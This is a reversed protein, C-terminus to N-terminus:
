CGKTDQAEVFRRVRRLAAQTEERVGKGESDLM